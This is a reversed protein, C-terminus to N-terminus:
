GRPQEVTQQSKVVEERLVAWIARYLDIFDPATRLELLNRPRDLTVPHSAVIRAAPGASLVVVEDALAIAEELDHTVFIV